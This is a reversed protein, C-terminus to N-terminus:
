DADPTARTTKVFGHLLVMRQRRDICFIVRAIRGHSLNSRVEFLGHKLPRCVPMGIPWGSEVLAIDVGIQTRDSAPTMAKLWERVPEGGAETRFFYDSIRKV